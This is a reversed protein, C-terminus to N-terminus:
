NKFEVIEVDFILTKGALKHNFDITVM